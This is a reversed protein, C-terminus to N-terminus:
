GIQVAGVAIECVAVDPGTGEREVRGEAGTIGAAAEAPDDTDVVPEHYRIRALGQAAAHDLGPLGVGVALTLVVEQTKPALTVNREVRRPSFQRLRLPAPDDVAFALPRLVDPIADLAVELPELGPGVLHVDAHQQRAVARIRRAVDAVARAQLGVRQEPSKAVRRDGGRREARARGKPRGADAPACCLLRGQGTQADMVQHQQRQRTRTVEEIRQAKRTQEVIGGVQQEALDAIPQAVQALDSDAVQREVALRATQRATFYLPDVQRRRQASRQDVRQEHEVFGRDAQMRAVHQAHDLDHMPQAVGAVRQHDDFVIRLDHEFGVPDEVHARTGTLAAAFDDAEARGGLHTRM